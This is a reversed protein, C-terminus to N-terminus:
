EFPDDKAENDSQQKLSDIFTGAMNALASGTSTLSSAAGTQAPPTPPIPTDTFTVTIARGPLWITSKTGSASSAVNFENVQTALDEKAFVIRGNRRDICMVSAQKVPEPSLLARSNSVNRVFWLAPSDSPQHLIFGHEDIFAPVQWRLKGTDRDILYMRGSAVPANFSHAHRIAPSDPGTNTRSTNAFLIYDEGSPILRVSQLNEDPELKTRVIVSDDRLSHIVFRGNTDLLALLGNNTLTARADQSVDESWVDNQQWIDKLYLRMRTDHSDWGLVFRGTLQWINAKAPLTREGLLKGDSIRYISAPDENPPSIIVIKDDGSITAGAPMGARSWALQGTLPDICNLTRNRQYVVGNRCVPGLSSVAHGSDDLNAPIPAPLPDFLPRPQMDRKLNTTRSTVTQRWRVAENRTLTDALMDIGILEAGFYIIGFKGLLHVQDLGNQHVRDISIETMKHGSQDRAVIANFRTDFGFTERPLPATPESYVPLTALRSLVEASSNIAKEEVEADGWPWRSETNFANKLLVNGEKAAALLDAGTKDRECVISAFQTGLTKYANAALKWEAAREYIAATRALAPGAIAADHDNCLRHLLMEAEVLRGSELLRDALVLRIPAFDPHFGFHSLDLQLQTIARESQKALLTAIHADLRKRVAEDDSEYLQALRAQIWRDSRVTWTTDYDIMFPEPSTTGPASKAVIDALSLYADVAKLLDGAEHNGEAVSQWYEALKTPSDILPLVQESLERNAAFNEKVAALFTSVLLERVADDDPELSHARQLARLAKNSDGDHLYLEGQRALAWGDNADKVLREAVRRRLSPMQFYTAVSGASHSIVEDKYCVLNGLPQPTPVREIITGETLSVKLLTSASTPVFYHDGSRFGRGSPIESDSSRLSIPKEWTPKGDAMNLAVLQEKCVVLAQGNHICAIYLADSLDDKRSISWIEKGQNMTLDLCIIKEADVPALLASGNSITVTADLWPREPLERRIAFGRSFGFSNAQPPQRYQYGWMLSRTVVDVAVVAGASTPCILVGDAYSPSAGALRRPINESIPSSDVHALQQSWQLSGTASDLVVLRIESKLEAIAFLQGALPLPPGLFFAGALNPEDLGTEGGIMWRLAGQRRLDLAVLQNFEEPSEPNRFRLGGAGPRYFERSTAEHLEDLMFVSDGDSSVQGYPTDQWLRQFLRDRRASVEDNGSNSHATLPIDDSSVSWWPYEWIRKGTEFDIALLRQPTRMMVVDRVALPYVSPIAAIDQELKDVRIEEILNEDTSDSATPVRWRFSPLPSDGITSANRAADGRFLLWDSAVDAPQGNRRTTQKALWTTVKEQPSDSTGNQGALQDVFDPKRLQLQELISRAKELKNARAWCAALLLSLEPEFQLAATRTELLRQLCMAASVPQGQDLQLRGLLLTAEYGAQTHFYKRTVETLQLIDGSAAARELLERADAGFRLEYLERAAAPLSGLLRQAESKLSTQVVAGNDMDLFYDQKLEELLADGTDEEALLAGLDAVADGFRKDDIAEQARALHQRLPRPAALFATGLSTGQAASPSAFILGVFLTVLSLSLFILSGAVTKM